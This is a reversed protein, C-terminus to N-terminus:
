NPWHRSAVETAASSSRSRAPSWCSTWRVSNSARGAAPRRVRRRRGNAPGGPHGHPGPRGFPRPPPVGPGLPSSPALEGKYTYSVGTLELRGEAVVPRGDYPMLEEDGDVQMMLDMERIKALAVDGRLLDPIRSMFHQMPMALFITVLVYSVLVHGPLQLLTALVFLITAMALLQMLRGYGHALSARVGADVNQDRLEGAAGVLHRSMFQHRRGRHLKLEKIGVTVAHFSRLLADENERSERFIRKVKRLLLEVGLISLATGVITVAFVPGSVVALAVLCGIITVVDVCFNPLATVAQSLARVDETLTALLRHVGLRELRELPASMVATSLQVRLRYIAEQTLRILLVQSTVAAVLAILGTVIFPVIARGHDTGPAVADRILLLLYTNAVGSILGAAFVAVIRPRSISLLFKILQM